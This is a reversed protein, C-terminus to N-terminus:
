YGRLVAFQNIHFKSNGLFADAVRSRKLFFGIDYEDTMGVGGHMQIAEQSALQCIEGSKSKAAAVMLATNDDKNDLLRLTKKVLSKTVEIESFLHSVRHQIGQFSGVSVGFQKREVIYNITRNLCEESIGMMESAICARGIDLIKELATFGKDIELLISDSNIEVNDFTINSINRSDISNSKNISIGKLGSPIIFLTIGETSNDDGSTRASCIFYDAVSGDIVFNKSGSIKFGNNWREAKTTVLNPSHKLSEDIALSFILKGESIKKLFTKKQNESGFINIASAGVIATSLFPSATLTRGMEESILGAATYGMDVGNFEEPILVGLLGLDAMEQWTKRCFNDPNNEDRIRRLQDVPANTTLFNRVSDRLIALEENEINKM